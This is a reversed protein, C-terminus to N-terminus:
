KVRWYKSHQPNALGMPVWWDWCKVRGPCPCDISSSPTPVMDILRTRTWIRPCILLTLRRLHVSKSVFVAVQNLFLSVHCPHPTLAQCMSRPEAYILPTDSSHNSDAKVYWYVPTRFYLCNQEQQYSRYVAKGTQGRSLVKQM